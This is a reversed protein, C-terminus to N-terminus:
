TGFVIACDVSLHGAVEKTHSLLILAHLTSKLYLGAVKAQFFCFVELGGGLFLWPEVVRSLVLQLPGTVLFWKSM